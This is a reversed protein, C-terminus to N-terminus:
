GAAIIERARDEQNPFLDVPVKAKGLAKLVMYRACTSNDGQCYQRKFGASTGPMNAMKDNFFVCGSLVECEAMKM